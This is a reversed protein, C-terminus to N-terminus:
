WEDEESDFLQTAIYDQVQQAVADQKTSEAASADQSKSGVQSSTVAIFHVLKSLAEPTHVTVVAEKNGTFETLVDENADDGIAVAVKIASKFWNNSKLQQLAAQYEDTPEGDSLLFIAPAFSGAAANMFGTKQSLKENLMKCAAGFDTWGDTDIYKWKFNEVEIPEPYLWEAGCSFKMAAIKIKADANKESISQIEPIVNKIAENLTGIKKGSMSGSTDAMFFLVMTRAVVGETEDFKGM